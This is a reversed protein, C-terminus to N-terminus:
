GAHGHIKGYISKLEPLVHRFCAVLDEITSVARPFAISYVGWREPTPESIVETPFSGVSWVLGARSNDPAVVFGDGAVRPNLGQFATIAGYRWNDTM